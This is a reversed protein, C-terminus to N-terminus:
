VKIAIAIPSNMDQRAIVSSQTRKSFEVKNISRAESIISAINITKSMTKM